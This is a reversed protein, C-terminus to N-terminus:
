RWSYREIWGRTKEEEWVWEAEAQCNGPAGGGRGWVGHVGGGKSVMM